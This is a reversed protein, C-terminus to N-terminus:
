KTLESRLEGSMERMANTQPYDSVRNIRARRRAPQEEEDGRMGPM